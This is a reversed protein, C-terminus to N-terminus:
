KELPRTKFTGLNGNYTSRCVANKREIGGWPQSSGTIKEVCSECLLLRPSGELEVFESEDDIARHCFHLAAIQNSCRGIIM